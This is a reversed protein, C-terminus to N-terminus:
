ICVFVLCAPLTLSTLFLKVFQCNTFPFAIQVCSIWSLRVPWFSSAISASITCYPVFLTLPRNPTDLFQYLFSMDCNLSMQLLSLFFSLVLPSRLVYPIFFFLLPQLSASIFLSLLLLLSVTRVPRIRCFSTWWDSQVSFEWEYKVVTNPFVRQCCQLQPLGMKQVHKWVLSWDDVLSSLEKLSGGWGGKEKYKCVLRLLPYVVVAKLLINMM